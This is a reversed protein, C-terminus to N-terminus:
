TGRLDAGRALFESLLADYYGEDREVGGAGGHAPELLAAAQEDGPAAAAAVIDEAPELREAHAKVQEELRELRMLAEQQTAAAEERARDRLRRAEHM